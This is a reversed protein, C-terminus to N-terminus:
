GIDLTRNTFTHDIWGPPHQYSEPELDRETGRRTFGSLATAIKGRVTTQVAGKQETYPGFGNSISSM